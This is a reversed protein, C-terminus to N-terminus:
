LSREAFRQQWLLQWPIPLYPMRIRSPNPTTLFGPAMIVATTVRYRLLPSNSSLLFPTSSSSSFCTDHALSAFRRQTHIAGNNNRKRGGGGGHEL